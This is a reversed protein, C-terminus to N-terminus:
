ANRVPCLAHVSEPIFHSSCVLHSGGQIKIGPLFGPPIWALNERPLSIGPLWFRVPIRGHIEGLNEALLLFGLPWFRAPIGAAFRASIRTTFCFDRHNFDRWYGVVFRALTRLLWFRVLIGLTFRPLIRASFCIGPPWFREAIKGPIEGISMAPLSIRPSIWQPFRPLIKSM